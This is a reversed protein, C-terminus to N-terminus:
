ATIHRVPSSPGRPMEQTSTSRDAGPRRRPAHVCARSSCGAYSSPDMELVAPYRNGIEHALFSVPEPDRHGPEVATADIDTGTGVPGRPGRELRREIMRPLTPLKTLGELGELRYLELQCVHCGGQHPRNITKRAASLRSRPSASAVICQAMAFLSAVSVPQLNAVLRQLNVAPVAIELIERKLAQQAIDPYM